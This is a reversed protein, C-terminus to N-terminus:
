RTKKDRRRKYNQLPKGALDYATLVFAGMGDDDPVYIVKLYRGGQTQGLAIMTGDRGRGVEGPNALVEVVEDEDVNHKHVHPQNTEPDPYFRCAM